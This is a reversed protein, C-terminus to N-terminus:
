QNYCDYWRTDEPVLEDILDWLDPDYQLLEVRTNINNHVGNAPISELNTDYWDQVGEAWYEQPSDMAYTNRYTGANKANQYLQTLRREFTTDASYLGYLSITHAFEHVCISEGRWRDSSQCLINEEACSAVQGGLGRARTNYYDPYMSYEPIDTTKENVGIITFHVKNRILAQTVDDREQTMEKVLECARILTEDVPSNSTVIPLGNADAYKQYFNSLNLRQRVAAPVATVECDSNVNPVDPDPEPTGTDSGDGNSYDDCGNNAPECGAAAWILLFAVAWLFVMNKKM